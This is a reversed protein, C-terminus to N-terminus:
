NSKCRQFVIPNLVGSQFLACDEELRSDTGGKFRRPSLPLFFHRSHATVDPSCNGPTLPAVVVCSLFGPITGGRSFGHIPRSMRAVIARPSLTWELSQSFIGKSYSRTLFFAFCCNSIKKLQAMIQDDRGEM